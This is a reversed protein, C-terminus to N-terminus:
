PTISLNGSLYHVATNLKKELVVFWAFGKIQKEFGVPKRLDTIGTETFGVTGVGEQVFVCAFSEVLNDPVIISVNAEGNNVFITHLNDEDTLTHPFESIVKQINKLNVRYPNLPTGDGEVLTSIGDILVTVGDEGDEGPVGQEGQPGPPGEVVEVYEEINEATIYVKEFFNYTINSYDVGDESVIGNPYTFNSALTGGTDGEEVPRWQYFKNNEICYVLMGKVYTFALNNSAGLSQLQSLTAVTTKADLPLQAPVRLKTPIDNVVSM